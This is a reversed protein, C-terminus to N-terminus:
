HTKAYEAIVNNIMELKDTCFGSIGLDLQEITGQETNNPDGYTVIMFGMGLLKSILEKDKLLFLSNIVYGQVGMEKLIPAMGITKKVFYEFTDEDEKTMLSLVPYKQQKYLLMMLSFIDFCSFFFKRDNANESIETLVTDIFVNREVYPIHYNKPQFPWKVEIDYHVESPIECLLDHLTPLHEHWQLDLKCDRFQDVTFQNVAYNFTGPPDENIPQGLEDRKKSQKIVYDHHIVPTNEKSLQVDFEIFQCGVKAAQLISAKTNEQYDKVHLNNGSGRHGITFYKPFKLDIQPGPLKDFPTLLCVMLEISDTESIPFTKKIYKKGELMQINFALKGTSAPIEFSFDDIQKSDGYATLLPSVSVVKVPGFTGPEFTFSGTREKEIVVLRIMINRSQFFHHFSFTFHFVINEIKKKTVTKFTYRREFGIM